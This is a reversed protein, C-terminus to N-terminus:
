IVVTITIQTVITMTKERNELEYVCEEVQKGRQCVEGMMVLLQGCMQMQYENDFKSTIL